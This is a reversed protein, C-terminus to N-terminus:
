PQEQPRPYLVDVREISMFDLRGAPTETHAIVIPGDLELSRVEFPRGGWILQDGERLSAVPISEVGRPEDPQTQALRRYRDEWARSPFTM